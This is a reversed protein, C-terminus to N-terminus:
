PPLRHQLHGSNCAHTMASCCLRQIGCCRLYPAVSGLAWKRALRQYWGLLALQWRLKRPRCHVACGTAVRAPRVAYGYVACCFCLREGSQLGPPPLLAFSASQLAVEGIRIVDSLALQKAAINCQKSVAAGFLTLAFM